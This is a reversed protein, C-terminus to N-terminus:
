SPKLPKAGAVLYKPDTAYEPLTVPKGFGVTTRTSVGYAKRECPIALGLALDVPATASATAGSRQTHSVETGFSSHCGKRSSESKKVPSRMFISLPQM